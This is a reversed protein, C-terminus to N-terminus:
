RYEVVKTMGAFAPIWTRKSCTRWTSPSRVDGHVCLADTDLGTLAAIFIPSELGKKSKDKTM